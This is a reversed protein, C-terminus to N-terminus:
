RELREFRFTFSSVSQISTSNIVASVVRGGQIGSGLAMSRSGILLVAFTIKFLYPRFGHCGVFENDRGDVLVFALGHTVDQQLQHQGIQLWGLQEM